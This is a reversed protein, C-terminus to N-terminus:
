TTAEQRAQRMAQNETQLQMITRKLRLNEEQLGSILAHMNPPDAGKVSDPSPLRLTECLEPLPRGAAAAKLASVVADNTLQSRNSQEVMWDALGQFVKPRIKGDAILVDGLRQKTQAQKKLAAALVTPSIMALRMLMEGIQRELDSAYIMQAQLQLARKLSDIGLLGMKFAVEGFPLTKQNAARARDQEALVERVQARTLYGEGELILGLLSSKIM